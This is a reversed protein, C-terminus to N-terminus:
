GRLRKVGRLPHGNLLDVLGCLRDPTVSEGGVMLLMRLPADSMMAEVMPAMGPDGGVRKMAVKKMATALLHGLPTEDIEAVTSNVTFPEGKGRRRRPLPRGLLAAFEADSVHLGDSLDRYCPLSRPPQVRTQATVDVAARLRIDRSSAAARIEYAGSEVAWDRAAANYYAFARRTLAFTVTKTEGPHLAVKEFGRLEQGPRSVGGAPPAVYLEVTESGARSGTNTVNLSVTLTEADTMAARDLTLDSYEFTTYSLGHGFPWRVAKGATDYYRYGVFVSERYEVSRPWGPFWQSAPDDGLKECWSEALKGSPCTKGTLLDVTAGCSAEGGLYQLLVAKVAGAWPCEVVGGTQLVVVTNPNVAAVREILRLHSEPMALSPRDFGESEYRDPLGAFIVAADKGKAAACAAQIRAEDPDGSALDYGEAYTFQFGAAGLEDLASDVKHPNIRSSGAGQYRPKDAMVGIVALSQGPRLPLLGGENKLLVASEAAARRALAHHAAADYTTPERAESKLILETVRRATLDLDEPSLEGSRVAEAVARDNARTAAPMELDLGAHVGRVRDNVAGWDSVVLGGFGWEDRLLDTLLARSESAYEGWLRNYSCMVTWPRAKKVALEFATLYIERLAREDVVAEVTMRLKEQNNAAFHKLSTGVNQSQVGNIFAAALEGALLPDESFYEFNRGCLPSRKMNVGPGLVVAVDEQRCEEGIARGVEDLLARDFSCASCCAAPFCTSPVSDSIGLHDAGQAQKRLGHPGDTVMVSPLGLRDIAKLHWFDAGSCLSAKEELTMQAVLTKAKESYDM